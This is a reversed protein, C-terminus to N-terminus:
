GEPAHGSGVSAPDQKHSGLFHLTYDNSFGLKWEQIGLSLLSRTIHIPHISGSLTRGSLRTDKNHSILHRM